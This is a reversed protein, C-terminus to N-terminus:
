LTTPHLHHTQIYSQFSIPKLQIQPCKPIQKRKLSNWAHDALTLTHSKWKWKKLTTISVHKCSKSLLYVAPPFNKQVKNTRSSRFTVLERIQEILIFHFNRNRQSINHDCCHVLNKALERSEPAIGNLGWDSIERAVMYVYSKALERM